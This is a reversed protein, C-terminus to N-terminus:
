LTARTSAKIKFKTNYQVKRVISYTYSTCVQVKLQVQELDSFVFQFLTKERGRGRWIGGRKESAGQRSGRSM